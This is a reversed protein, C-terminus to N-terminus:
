PAKAVSASGTAFTDQLAMNLELVNVLPVGALGNLPAYSHKKVLGEIDSKVAAKDRNQELAWAAAVRHIQYLAGEVTIDPDTGSGSAMVLDAPVPAFEADPHYKQWVEYFAGQLDKGDTTPWTNTLGQAYSEFFLPALDPPTPTAGEAASATWKAVDDPHDSGWQTVFEANAADALVWGVALDAVDAQWQALIKPDQAMSDRVWKEVDPGVPEGNRYKLVLGLQRLVRKRLAPNSPGLNSGSTAAANYSAASPRPRFFKADSFPQAILRSGIANGKADNVLSGQAKEHFLTQGLGLLVAPYVVSAIVVTLFLLWLNARLHAKM